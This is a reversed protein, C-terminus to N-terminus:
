ELVEKENKKGEELELLWKAMMPLDFWDVAYVSKKVRRKLEPLSDRYVM